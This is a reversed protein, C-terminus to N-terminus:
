AATRRGGDEAEDGGLEDPEVGTGVASGEAVGETVVDALVGM